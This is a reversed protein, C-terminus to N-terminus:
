TWRTSTRTGPRARTAGMRIVRGGAFGAKTQEAQDAALELDALKENKEGEDNREQEIM